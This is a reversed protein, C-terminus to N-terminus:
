CGGAWRVFFVEVDAGDVGGDRNLDARPESDQWALFFAEVDAGDVGGDRNFDGICVEYAARWVGRGQTAALVRRRSPELVLDIVPVNPMGMGYRSWTAGDDDSAYVGAETGALIRAPYVSTDAAVTNVPIDPLGADLAEWNAGSDRTRLVQTTGYAAAALYLTGADLPDVFLERTIRPWGPNGTRILTFNAGGNGSRLVRGDNTAVYVVMPDSPAIALTRIAAAGGGTVDASLRTFSDGGNTSLWLAETAYLMRRPDSPDLTYPSYFAARGSIGTSLGSFSVGNTSRYLVGAGQSQTYLVTPDLQNTQTFGGDGGTVHTWVTTNSQRLVCGNDQLGVLMIEDNTPHTSLGAYCQTLTLGTNLTAWTTGQRRYVGGDCGVVLRGSADFALAHVDPHPINVTATTTAGNTSRVLDLGGFYVDDANTPNVGVAAFYWGYTAQSGSGISGATWTAGRDSSRYVGVTTSGGGTADAPLAIYAYVRAPNAASVGLGVRGVSASAPLGTTLKSWTAGANTSKWVGNDASGFIDSVGAYVVTASGPEVAVDTIDLDPLGTLRTWTAGRNDSAWLGRAGNAGPHGKAAARTPFGGARTVAAFLRPTAAANMALRSICRGSFETAGSQTWNDGGDISKFVGVGPRSHNAFNGEGSGAYVTNPQTPDILVAGMATTPLFDTLATWTAGGDRTRWVGGDAGTVYYLNADTASCAVGSVRGTAGGFGTTQSPGVSTWTQGACAASLVFVCAITASTNM